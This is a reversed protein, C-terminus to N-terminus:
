RARADDSGGDGLDIERMDTCRLGGYRLLVKLLHRLQHTTNVGAAGEELVLIFRARTSRPAGNVTTM